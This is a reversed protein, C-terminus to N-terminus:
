SYFSEKDRLSEEKFIKWSDKYEYPYVGKRLLLEFKNLDKNCLQYKNLFKEILTIYTKNKGINTLEDQILRCSDISEILSKTTSGINDTFKKNSIMCLCSVLNSLSDQMFRYFDISKFLSANTSGANDLEKHNIESLDDVLSSLPDKMFRCSDIFKLMFALRKSKAKDNDRDHDSDNDGDNKLM